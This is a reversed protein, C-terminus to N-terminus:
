KAVIILGKEELEEKAIVASAYRNPPNIQDPDNIDFIAIDISNETVEIVVRKYSYYNDVFEFHNM